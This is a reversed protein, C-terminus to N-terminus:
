PNICTRARVLISIMLVVAPLYLLGRVIYGFREVAGDMLPYGVFLNIACVAVLLATILFSSRRSFDGRGSLMLFLSLISFGWLRGTDVAVTMMSLPLAVAAFIAICQLTRDRGPASQALWFLALGLLTPIVAVLARRDFLREFATPSLTGFMDQFPETVAAPVMRHRAQEIFSFSQLQQALAARVTDDSNFSQVAIIIAAVLAPLLLRVYSNVTWRKLALAGIAAPAVIILAAEHVFAGVGLLAGAGLSRGTSILNLTLVGLIVLLADLYGFSHAFIVLFPSTAFVLMAAVAEPSYASRKLVQAVSIFLLMTAAFHAAMSAILIAIEAYGVKVWHPLIGWLVTGALGRRVFGFEYTLLWQAEAWDNPARITRLQTVVASWFM